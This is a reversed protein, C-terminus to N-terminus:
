RRKILAKNAKSPPMTSKRVVLEPDVRITGAMKKGSMLRLLSEMALQGMRYMPQRVTTLPPKTYSAFFLDDFGTV